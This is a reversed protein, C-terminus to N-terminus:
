RGALMPRYIQRPTLSANWITPKQIQVFHTGGGGGSVGITRRVRGGVSSALDLGYAVALAAVLVKLHGTPVAVQLKPDSLM